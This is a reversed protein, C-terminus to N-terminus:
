PSSLPEFQFAMEFVLPVEEQYFRWKPLVAHIADQFAEPCDSDISGRDVLGETSVEM